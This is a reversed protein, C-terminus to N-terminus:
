GAGVTDPISLNQHSHTVHHQSTCFTPLDNVMQHGESSQGGFVATSRPPKFLQMGCYAFLMIQGYIKAM